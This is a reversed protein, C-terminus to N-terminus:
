VGCLFVHVGRCSIQLNFLSFSSVELYVKFLFDATSLKTSYLVSVVLTKFTDLPSRLLSFVGFRCLIILDYM